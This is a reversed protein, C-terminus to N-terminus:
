KANEEASPTIEGDEMPEDAVLVLEFLSEDPSLRGIVDAFGYMHMYFTRVDDAFQKDFNRAFHRRSFTIGAATIPDNEDTLPITIRTCSADLKDIMLSSLFMTSAESLAVHYPVRGSPHQRSPGLPPQASMAENIAAAMFEPFRAVCVSYLTNPDM